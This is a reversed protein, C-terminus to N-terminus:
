TLSTIGCKRKIYEDISGKPIKWIRGEKYAHLEGSNLIRQLTNYGCKLYEMAEACNLLETSYNDM